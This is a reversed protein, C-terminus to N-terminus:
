YDVKTEIKEVEEEPLQELVPIQSEEDLIALHQQEEVIKVFQKPSQNLRFLKDRKKIVSKVHKLMKDLM